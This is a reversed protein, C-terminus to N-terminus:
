SRKFNSQIEWFFDSNNANKQFNLNARGELYLTTRKVLFDKSFRRYKLDKFILHLKSFEEIESPLYSLYTFEFFISRYAVLNINQKLSLKELHNHWPRKETCFDSQYIKKLKMHWSVVQILYLSRYISNKISIEGEIIGKFIYSKYRDSSESINIRKLYSDLNSNVLDKFM